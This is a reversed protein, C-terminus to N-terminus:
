SHRDLLDMAFSPAAVPRGERCADQHHLFRNGGDVRVPAAGTACAALVNLDHAL